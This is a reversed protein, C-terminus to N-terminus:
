QTSAGLSHVGFMFGKTKEWMALNMSNKFDLDVLSSDASLLCAPGFASKSPFSQSCATLEPFFPRLVFILCVAFPNKLYTSDCRGRVSGAAM